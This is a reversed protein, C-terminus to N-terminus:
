PRLAEGEPLERLGSVQIAHRFLFATETLTFRSRLEEASVSFGGRNLCHSIFRRMADVKERETATGQLEQVDEVEGALAEGLTLREGNIEIQKTLM